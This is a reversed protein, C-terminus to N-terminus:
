FELSLGLCLTNGLDKNATLWALDIGIFKYKFGAGLSAYTPLVAAKSGYHFGGRAFIMDKFSYQVGVAAAPGGKFFYEANAGFDLASKGLSLGYGAAVVASAPLPYKKGDSTKVPTGISRVSGEVFLADKQWHLFIDSCFAKYTDSSSLSQSAYRLNVGASLTKGFALGFGIGAVTNRPRFTGTVAGGDDTLDYPEGSDSAFHASIGFKAGAKYSVAANIDSTKAASPAWNMYSIGASIKYDEFPILAPNYDSKGTGALAAAAPDRDFRLFPMAAEGQSYAFNCSLSALTLALLYKFTKKM